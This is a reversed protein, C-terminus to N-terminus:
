RYEELNIIEADYQTVNDNWKIAKDIMKKVAYFVFHVSVEGEILRTDRRHMERLMSQPLTTNVIKVIDRYSNGDTYAEFMFHDLLCGEACHTAYHRMIRYHEETEPSYSIAISQSPRKLYDSNQGKGTSHDIWELDEFGDDKLKNYWEKQLRAYEKDKM